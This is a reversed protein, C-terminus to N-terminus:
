DAEEMASLLEEQGRLLTRLKVFYNRKQQELGQIEARLTGADKRLADAEQTAKLRAEALILDAERQASAKTEDQVRQITLVADTLTKEMTAYRDVKQRDNKITQLLDQREAIMSELVGAVQNLFGHVEDPDYGGLKKANFKQNRIDLPTLEM